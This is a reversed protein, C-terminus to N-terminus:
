REDLYDLLREESTITFGHRKLLAATVGNGARKEGKFEGNYIMASGCSPSNEKLVVHTAGVEKAKRLTLHAGRIYFETVDRGSKEIIRAKGDLVDVGDGGIIEAPERPTSFGGLLEPCVSIAKKEELLELIRDDLSNTGDYRVEFGALCSSVLIMLDGWIM